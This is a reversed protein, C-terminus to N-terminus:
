FLNKDGKKSNAKIWYVLYVKSKSPPTPLCPGNYKDGPIAQYDPECLTMIMITIM